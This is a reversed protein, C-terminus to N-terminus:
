FYWFCFLFKVTLPTQELQIYDKPNALPASGVFFLQPSAFYYDDDRSRRSHEPIIALMNYFSFPLKKNKYNLAFIAQNFSILDNLNLYESRKFSVATHAKTKLHHIHRFALDLLTITPQLSGQRTNNIRVKCKRRQKLWQFNLDELSNALGLPCDPSM